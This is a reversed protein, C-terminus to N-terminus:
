ASWRGGRLPGKRNIIYKAEGDNRPALLLKAMDKERELMVLEAQAKADGLSTLVRVATATLLVPHLEVPLPIVGTTEEVFIYDGAEVETSYDSTVTIVTATAGSVTLSMNLYDFYPRRKIIDVVTNTTIGTPTSSVTIQRLGGSVATIAAGNVNDSLSVLRPRRVYYKFRLSYGTLTPTPLLVVKEGQVYYAMQAGWVWSGATQYRWAENAPIEPISIQNGASDVLLLDRLKRGSARYPMRYSSTGSTITTDSTTVWYEGMVSQVLSEIDTQMAMDALLFLQADTIAQNDDPLQCRVKLQTLFDDTTWAM